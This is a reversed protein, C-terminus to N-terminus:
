LVELDKEGVLNEVEEHYVRREADERSLVEHESELVGTRIVKSCMIIKVFLGAGALGVPPSDRM